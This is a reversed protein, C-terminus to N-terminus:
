WQVRHAVKGQEAICHCGSKFRNSHGIQTWREVDVLDFASKGIFEVLRDLRAVSRNGCGATGTSLHGCEQVIELKSGAIGDAITRAVSVPTLADENGVLVLTPCHIAGLSSRSDPRSIIAKQQRIFTEPGTDDMM